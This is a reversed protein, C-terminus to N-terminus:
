ASGQKLAQQLAGVFDRRAVPKPICVAAGLARALDWERVVSCVVVPIARTEPDGHLQVLLKWGDLDLDPLMIDLVIADPRETRVMELARRGDAAHLLEYGTGDVYARYFSVLDANDEIVLVRARGPPTDVPLDISLIAGDGEARLTALGHHASAIQQIISLDPPESSLPLGGSIEMRVLGDLLHASLTIVGGAMGQGLVAISALLMQRLASPHIAARLDRAVPKLQLRIGRERTLAAGLDVADQLTAQVDAAAGPVKEMLSVLERRVQAAWADPGSAPAQAGAQAAGAAGRPRNPDPAARQSAEQLSRALARVAVRQQKRLYRTDIGLKEAAAEQTLRQVYRYSLLLHLRASPTDPPDLPRPKLRDIADIIARQLAGVGRSRPVDLAMWLSEPPEYLPHYLHNLAEQLDHELEELIGM